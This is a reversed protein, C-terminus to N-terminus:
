ADTDASMFFMRLRSKHFCRRRRQNVEERVSDGLLIWHPKSFRRFRRGLLRDSSSISYIARIGIFM